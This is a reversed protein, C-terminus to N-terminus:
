REKSSPKEWWKGVNISQELESLSPISSTRDGLPLDPPLLSMDLENEPKQTPPTEEKTKPQRRGSFFDVALGELRSRDGGDLVAELYHLEEETWLEQYSLALAVFEEATLELQKLLETVDKTKIEDKVIMSPPAPPKPAEKNLWEETTKPRVDELFNEFTESIM